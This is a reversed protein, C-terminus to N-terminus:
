AHAHGHDDHEGGHDDHGHGDGHDEHEIALRIYITSLLCFVYTQLVVVLVGLILMPVPVLVFVLSTFVSVVLHDAFLNICLRMALSIPRVIHSIIELPIMLPALMPMPGMFHKLYNGIGQRRVGFIHTSAFIILGCALTINFNSTPPVFGPILGLVNSFFIFCACTGILPLFYKADDKGLNEVLMGYVAEVLNEMFSAITLKEEPVVAAATNNVRGRTVMVLLGIVLLVFVGVTFPELTVPTNAPYSFHKPVESLHYGAPCQAGAATPDLEAQPLEPHLDNVCGVKNVMAWLAHFNPLALLYSFWSSHEPM